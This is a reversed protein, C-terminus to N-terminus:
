VPADRLMGDIVLITTERERSGRHGAAEKEGLLNGKRVEPSKDVVGSLNGRNKAKLVVDASM